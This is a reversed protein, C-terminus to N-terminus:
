PESEGSDAARSLPSKKPSSPYRDRRGQDERRGRRLSARLELAEADLELDARGRDVLELVAGCVLDREGVCEGLGARDCVAGRANDAAVGDDREVPADEALRGVLARGARRQRGEGAARVLDDAAERQEVAELLVGLDGAGADAEPGDVRREEVPEDRAAFPALPRTGVGDLAARRREREGDVPVELVDDTQGDRAQDVM